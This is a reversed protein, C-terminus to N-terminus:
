IYLYQRQPSPMAVYRPSTQAPNENDEAWNAPNNRIYERISHLETENRVVHEYYNRQWLTKGSSKRIQNIHKATNMRFYGIMKPIIM